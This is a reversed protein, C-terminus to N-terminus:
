KDGKINFVDALRRQIGLRVSDKDLKQGTQKEIIIAIDSYTVGLSRLTAMKQVAETNNWNFKTM